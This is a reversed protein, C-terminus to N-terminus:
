RDGSREPRGSRKTSSNRRFRTTSRRDCRSERERMRRELPHGRFRIVGVRMCKRIISRGGYAMRVLVSPPRPIPQRRVADREVTRAERARLELVHPSRELGTMGGAVPWVGALTTAQKFFTESARFHKKRRRARAQFPPAAEAFREQRRTMTGDNVNTEVTL